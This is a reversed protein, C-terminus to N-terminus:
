NHISATSVMKELIEVVEQGTTSLCEFNSKAHIRLAIALLPVDSKPCGNYAESLLKSYHNLGDILLASARSKDGKEHAELADRLYTKENM